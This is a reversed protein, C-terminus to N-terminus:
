RRHWEARRITLLKKRLIERLEMLPQREEGSAVKYQRKFSRLEQRLQQIKTARCNKSYPKGSGATEIPGFRESAYSVIITTMTHLRRDADGKATTQVIECVDEDFQQWMSKSTASPWKIRQRQEPHLRPYLHESTSPETPHTRAM